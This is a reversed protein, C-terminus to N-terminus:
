GATRLAKFKSMDGIKFALECPQLDDLDVLRRHLHEPSAQSNGTWTTLIIRATHLLQEVIKVVALLFFVRRMRADRSNFLYFYLFVACVVVDDRDPVM